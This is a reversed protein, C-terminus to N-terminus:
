ATTPCTASRTAPSTARSRRSRTRRRSWSAATRRTSATSARTRPRRRASGCTSRRPAPPRAADQRDQALHHRPGALRRRGGGAQRRGGRAGAVAQAARRLPPDLGPARHLHPRRLALPHPGDRVPHRGAQRLRDRGPRRLGAGPDGRRGRCPQEIALRTGMRERARYVSKGNVLSDPRAFYVHEFVCFRPNDVAEPQVRHSTLGRDDIVVLEGPEVDRIYEAEILDFSSTESSLVYSDKLRGIVLPRFGHPDRVGILKGDATLLVLSYAGTVQRLAAILRASRVDFEPVKAMLHVICETDSTTQFISGSAELEPACSRPTSWTATTPSPSRAAPTTSCSRSPTACSPAAPPPTGPTASRPRGPLRALSKEDFVDAVLGMASTAGCARRAPSWGPRSRGATSSPTSAWTRWTPPRTMVM